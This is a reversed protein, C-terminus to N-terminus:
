LIHRPQHPMLANLTMKHAHTGTLFWRRTRTAILARCPCATDACFQPHSNFEGTTLESLMTKVAM